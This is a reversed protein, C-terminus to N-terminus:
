PIRKWVIDENNRRDLVADVKGDNGRRFLLRGEVGKRFFLDPVEPIIVDKPRSGRQRYLQEGDKTIALTVGPALQYTGVYDALRAPDVKGPAPDEYYRFAQGAVIQWQGNRRMWTDTGHYRATLNQGYVSETEDLDYSLIAVNGEIRSQPQNVKINGSYGKPLAVIDEVLAAKNMNRGMEDFYMSDDAFDRKWPSQNGGAVADFREQTRRVLEDQSISTKSSCSGLILAVLSIASLLLLKKHL